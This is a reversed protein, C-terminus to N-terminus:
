QKAGAALAQGRQRALAQVDAARQTDWGGLHRQTIDALAGIWEHSDNLCPIYSFHQGGARVFAQRAEQSIEELTELCDSTFGPCVVDVSRVGAKAM